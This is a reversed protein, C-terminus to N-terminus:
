VAPLERLGRKEERRAALSGRAASSDVWSLDADLKGAGICDDHGAVLVRMETRGARGTLKRCVELPTLAM